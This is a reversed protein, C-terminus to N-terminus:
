MIIMYWAVSCMCNMVICPRLYSIDLIFSGEVKKSIYFREKQFILLSIGSLDRPRFVFATNGEM